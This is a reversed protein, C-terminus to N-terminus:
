KVSHLTLGFLLTNNIRSLSPLHVNELRFEHSVNVSLTQIIKWSLRSTIITFYDSREVLSHRYFVDNYLIMKGELFSHQQVWRLGLLSREREAGIRESNIFEEGAYHTVDYGVALELRFLGNRTKKLSSAGIGVLHRWNIRFMLNNDFLYAAFPYLQKGKPFYSFTLLEHWNDEILLDNTQNYRYSTLTHLEWKAKSLKVDLSPSIVFQSFTGSLYRGSLNGKLDYKLSNALTDKQANLLDISALTTFFLFIVSTYIKAM